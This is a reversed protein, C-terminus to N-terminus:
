NWKHNENYKIGIMFLKEDSENRYPFKISADIVNASLM